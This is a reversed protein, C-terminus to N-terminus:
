ASSSYAHAKSVYSSFLEKGKAYSSALKESARNAAIKLHEMNDDQSSPSDVNGFFADSSIAQSDRFTHMKEEKLMRMQATDEEPWVDDSSINKKHGYQLSINSTHVVNSARSHYGSDRVAGYEQKVPVAYISAATPENAEKELEDFDFDFDIEKAKSTKPVSTSAMSARATEGHGMDNGSCSIRNADTVAASSLQIPVSMPKIVVPKPSGPPLCTQAGSVNGTIPPQAQAPQAPVPQAQAPEAPQQAISDSPRLGLETVFKLTDKEMMQRYKTSLKDFYNIKSAGNVCDKRKETVGHGKYFERAKSNGGIAMQCIQHTTFRDLDCSRIFSIHVGFRRHDGSCELCLYIGYSLSVWTPNRGSCDFCTRNDPKGRLKRFLKTRIEDDLYGKSDVEADRLIEFDEM